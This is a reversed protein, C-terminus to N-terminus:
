HHSLQKAGLASLIMLGITALKSRRKQKKSKNRLGQNEKLLVEQQELSKTFSETVSKNIKIKEAIVCDKLSVISDLKNIQVEYLSDKVANEEIYEAVNKALSDCASLGSDVKPLPRANNLLEKAPFGRPEIRKKINTERQQVKVKAASLQNKATKLQRQLDTNKTELEAIKEQYGAVEEALQSKLTEPSVIATNRTGGSNGCGQVFLSLFFGTILGAILM